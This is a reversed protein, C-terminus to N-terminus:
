AIEVALITSARIQKAGFKPTRAIAFLLEHDIHLGAFCLVEVFKKSSFVVADRSKFLIEFFVPAFERTEAGLM